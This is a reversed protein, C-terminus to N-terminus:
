GLGNDFKGVGRWERRREFTMDHIDEVVGVPSVRLGQVQGAQEEPFVIARGSAVDM